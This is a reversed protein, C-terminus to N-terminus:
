FAESQLGVHQVSSSQNDGPPPPATCKCWSKLLPRTTWLTHPESGPCSLPRTNTIWVQLWSGIRSLKATKQDSRLCNEFLREVTNLGIGVCRVIRWFDIVHNMMQNRSQKSKKGSENVMAKFKMIDHKHDDVKNKSLNTQVIYITTGWNTDM